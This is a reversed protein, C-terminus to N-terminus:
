QIYTNKGTITARGDAMAMVVCQDARSNPHVTCTVTISHGLTNPANLLVTANTVSPSDTFFYLHVYLIDAGHLKYNNVSLDRAM